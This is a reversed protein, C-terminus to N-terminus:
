FTFCEHFESLQGGYKEILLKIKRREEDAYKEFLVDCYPEHDAIIALLEM